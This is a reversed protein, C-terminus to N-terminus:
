AYGKRGNRLRFIIFLVILTVVIIGNRVTRDEFASDYLRSFWGPGDDADTDEAGGTGASDNAPPPEPQSGADQMHPFFSPSQRVSDYEPLLDRDFSPLTDAMGSDPAPTLPAPTAPAPNTAPQERRPEPQRVPEPVRPAPERPAPAPTPVPEAGAPPQETPAPAEPAPQPAPTEPAPEPAPTEPVPQPAPEAPAQAALSVLPTALLGFALAACGSALAPAIRALVPRHLAKM